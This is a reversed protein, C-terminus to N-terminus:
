ETLFLGLLILAWVISFIIILVIQPKNFNKQEIVEVQAANRKAANLAQFPQILFIISSLSIFWFPDPLKYLMSFIIYGLFLLVPSYNPTEGEESAFNQIKKLLPYLFFIAFVARLAPMIKVRDKQQFFRWAKFMWWIDYMSFTIISLFIFKKLSMMKQPEIKSSTQIPTM